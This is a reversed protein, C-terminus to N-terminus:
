SIEINHIAGIILPNETLFIINILSVADVIDIRICDALVSGVCTIALIILLIIIVVIIVHVVAFV